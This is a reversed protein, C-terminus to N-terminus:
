RCQEFVGEIILKVANDMFPECARAVELAAEGASKEGEQILADAREATLRLREKNIREAEAETTALLRKAETEAERVRRKAEAEADARLKQATAEAEKIKLIAQKSM